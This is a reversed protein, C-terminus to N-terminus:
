NANLKCKNKFNTIHIHHEVDTQSLACVESPQEDKIPTLTKKGKGFPHRKNFLSKSGINEEFLMTPSPKKATQTVTPRNNPLGLNNNQINNHSEISHSNIKKNFNFFDGFSKKM